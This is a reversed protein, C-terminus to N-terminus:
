RRLHVFRRADAQIKVARYKSAQLEDNIFAVKDKPSLKIFWKAFEKVKEAQYRGDSSNLVNDLFAQALDSRGTILCVMGKNLNAWVNNDDGVTNELVYERSGQPTKLHERIELIRAKALDVLKLAATRFQEENEFEAFGSEKFILDYTMCSEPYWQWNICVNLCMGKPSNSPGFEVVTAWWGHDDLWMRCRDKRVVGIPKFVEDALNSVIKFQESASM